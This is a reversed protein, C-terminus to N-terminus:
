GEWVALGLGAAGRAPLVPLLRPLAVPDPQPDSGALRPLGAGHLLPRPHPPLQPPPVNFYQKYIYRQKQFHLTNLVCVDFLNHAPEPHIEFVNKESQIVQLLKSFVLTLVSEM